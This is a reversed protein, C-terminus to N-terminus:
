RNLGYLVKRVVVGESDLKKYALDYFRHWSPLMHKAAFTSRLLAVISWETLREVELKYLINDIENLDYRDFLIEVLFVTYVSSYVGNTKELAYIRERHQIM